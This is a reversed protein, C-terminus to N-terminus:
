RKGDNIYLDFYAKAGKLGEQPMKEHIYKVADLSHTSGAIEKATNRDEESLMDIPYVERLEKDIREDLELQKFNEEDIVCHIHGSCPYTAVLKGKYYLMSDHWGGGYDKISISFHELDERTIM